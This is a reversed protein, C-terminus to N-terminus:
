TDRLSLALLGMPRTMLSEDCLAQCLWVPSGVGGEVLWGGTMRGCAVVVIEAPRVRWFIVLAVVWTGPAVCAFSGDGM